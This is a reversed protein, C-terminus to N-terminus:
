GGSCADGCATDQCIQIELLPPLIAAFDVSCDESCQMAEGPGPRAYTSLCDLVCACGPDEAVCAEIQACCSSKRCAVCDSDDPEIACLGAETTSTDGATATDTAEDSSTDSAATSEVATASGTMTVSSGNTFTTPDSPGSDVDAAPGTTEDAASATTEGDSEGAADDSGDVIPGCGLVLALAAVLARM